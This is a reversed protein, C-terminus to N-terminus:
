ATPVTSEAAVTPTEVVSAPTEEVTPTPADPDINCYGNEFRWKATPPTFQTGDWTSYKVPILGHSCLCVVDDHGFTSKVDEVISSAHASEDFVHIDQLVGGKIFAHQHGEVHTTIEENCAM